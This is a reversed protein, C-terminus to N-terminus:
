KIRYRRRWLCSSNDGNKKAFLSSIRRRAAEEGDIVQNSSDKWSIVCKWNVIPQCIRAFNEALEIQCLFLFFPLSLFLSILASVSLCLVHQSSYRAGFKKSLKVRACVVIYSRIFVPSGFYNDGTWYHM